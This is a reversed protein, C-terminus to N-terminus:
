TVKELAHQAHTAYVALVEDTRAAVAEPYFPHAKIHRRPAGYHVFTWYRATSAFAVGNAAPGATLSAALRGTRRPPHTAALIVRGAEADAPGLEGILDGAAALQDALQHLETSDASFGAM